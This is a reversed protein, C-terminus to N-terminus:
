VKCKLTTFSKYFKEMDKTTKEIDFRKSEQRCNKSVCDYNISSIYTELKKSFKKPTTNQPIVLGVKKNIFEKTTENELAIIPKGLALSNIIALSQAEKLSASVLYDHNRIIRLLKGNNLYGNLFVNKTNLKIKLLKLKLYYERGTRKNGYCTLKYNEPLKSFVRILYEQNKRETYSGLCFFNVTKKTKNKNKGNSSLKYINKLDVGNNIIKVKIRNDIKRISNKIIQNLAIVGYTEQLFSKLSTQTYFEQAVKTLINKSFKPILHQIPETPVHHFTVVFPVKNKKAWKQTLKSTFISNQAHVIDPSFKEFESYLREELLPTILPFNARGMSISPIKRYVLNKNIKETSNSGGLCLYFVKNKKSLWRCLDLTIQSTGTESDVRYSSTILINM